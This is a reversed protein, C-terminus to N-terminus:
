ALGRMAKISEPHHLVIISAGAAKVAAASAIEFMLARSQLNGWSESFTDSKAEKTKLSEDAAFSIMPMNLYEDDELKIKEM